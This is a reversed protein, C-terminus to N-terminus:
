VKGSKEGHQARIKKVDRGPKKGAVSGSSAVTTSNAPFAPTTAPAAGMWPVGPLLRM